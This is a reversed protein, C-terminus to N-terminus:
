PSSTDAPAISTTDAPAISSTDPSGNNRFDAPSIRLGEPGPERQRMEEQVREQYQITEAEMFGYQGRFMTDFLTFALFIAVFLVGVVFVLVNVRKDYKLAMFITVVLAAKTSAIALALVINMPGIDVYKATVVTLVTLFVLAGFVKLLMKQPIIHHAM